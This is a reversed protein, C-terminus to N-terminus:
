LGLNKRKDMGAVQCESGLALPWPHLYVLVVFGLRGEEEPDLIEAFDRIEEVIPFRRRVDLARGDRRQSLEQVRSKWDKKRGMRFVGAEKESVEDGTLPELDDRGEVSHLSSTSSPHM